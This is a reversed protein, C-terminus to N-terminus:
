SNRAAQRAQKIGEWIKDVSERAHVKNGNVLEITAHGYHGTTSCSRVQAIADLNVDVHSGTEFDTLCIYREM